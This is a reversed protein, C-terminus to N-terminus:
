CQSYQYIVLIPHQIHPFNFQAVNLIPIGSYLSLWNENARWVYSWHGAFNGNSSKKNSFITIYM